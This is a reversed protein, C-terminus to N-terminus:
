HSVGGIENHDQRKKREEEKRGEEGRASISFFCSVAIVDRSTRRESCRLHIYREVGWVRGGRGHCYFQLMAPVSGMIGAHARLMAIYTRSEDWVYEVCMAGM